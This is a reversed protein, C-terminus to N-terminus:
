SFDVKVQLIYCSGCERRSQCHGVSERLGADDRPQAAAERAEQINLSARLMQDRHWQAQLCDAQTCGQGWFLETVEKVCKKRGGRKVLHLLGLPFSLLRLSPLAM